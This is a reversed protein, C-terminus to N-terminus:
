LPETLMLPAHSGVVLEQGERSCVVGPYRIPDGAAGALARAISARPAALEFPAVRQVRGSEVLDAASVRLTVQESLPEYAGGAVLLVELRASPLTFPAGNQRAVLNTMRLLPVDRFTARRHTLPNDVHLWSPWPLPEHRHEAPHGHAEHLLVAASGNRWVIPLRRAETEAPLAARRLLAVDREFHALDTVVSHAGHSATVTESSGEVTAEAVLRVRLGPVACARLPEIARECREVLEDRRADSAVIGGEDEYAEGHSLRREVLRADVWLEDRTAIAFVNRKSTLAV